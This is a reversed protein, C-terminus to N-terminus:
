FDIDCEHLGRSKRFSTDTLTANSIKCATVLILYYPGSAQGFSPSLPPFVGYYQVPPPLHRLPTLIGDKGGM